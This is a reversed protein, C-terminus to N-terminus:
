PVAKGSVLLKIRFISTRATIYLTKWDADGWAFNSPMEPLRICGLYKGGPDIIWIGSPGTCYINGQQDVKMGDPSGPETGQM